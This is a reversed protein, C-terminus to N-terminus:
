KTDHLTLIKKQGILLANKLALDDLLVLQNKPMITELATRYMEFIPNSAALFIKTDTHQLYRLEDGILMGSLYYYNDKKNKNELVDNVRVSFLNSALENKIGVSIGNKFAQKRESNWPSKIVSNALISTSSIVEFLEGTMFNKLDTYLQNSFSIHKSHTGPLLLIGNEVHVLYESLGIAQIEEGRMMGSNNKVGSILIIKLGNTTELFEANLNSGNSHFPFDAYPLNKMGINSSAMGAVVIIENQYKQSLKLIEEKLHESFFDIQTVTSSTKFSEYLDRIGLNSTREEIVSLTETEIVRLRFNTTGWDCSIFYKSKM